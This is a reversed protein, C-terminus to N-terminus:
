RTSSAPGASGSKEPGTIVPTGGDALPKV